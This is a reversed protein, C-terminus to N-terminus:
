RWCPRQWYQRTWTMRAKTCGASPSFPPAILPATALCLTPLPSQARACLACVSLVCVAGELRVGMGACGACRAAAINTDAAGFDRVHQAVAAAVEQATECERLLLSEPVVRRRPQGRGWFFHHEDAQPAPSLVAVSPPEACRCGRCAPLM